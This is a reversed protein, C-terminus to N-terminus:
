SVYVFCRIRLVCYELYLYYCCTMKSAVSPPLKHLTLREGHLQFDSISGKRANKQTFVKSITYKLVDMLLFIMEM